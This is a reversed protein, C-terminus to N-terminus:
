DRLGEFQSIIKNVLIEWDFEAVIQRSKIGMNMRMNENSFITVIKEELEKENEVLFGNEGDYLVDSPLTDKIAIIPLSSAMYELIKIPLAGKTVDTSRLPGIGLSANSLISPIQENPIWGMFKVTSELHNEDVISKLRDLEPGNGYLLVEIDPIKKLVNPLINLLKDLGRHHYMVGSFIIRRSKPNSKIFKNLDVGNPVLSINASNVGYFNEVVTKTESNPVLVLSSQKLAKSNYSKEIKRQISKLGTTKQYVADDIKVITPIQLEKGAQIAAHPAMHFPHFISFIFDYKKEQGLKVSANKLYNKCRRAAVKIQNKSPVDVKVVDVNAHLKPDYIPGNWEINPTVVTVSHGLKAFNNVLEVAVIVGGGSIPPFHFVVVLINM